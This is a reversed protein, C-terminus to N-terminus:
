LLQHYKLILVLDNTILIFKKWPINRSKFIMYLLLMYILSPTFPQHSNIIEMRGGRGQLQREINGVLWNM